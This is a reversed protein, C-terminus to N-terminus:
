LDQMAPSVVQDPWVLLVLIELIEQVVLQEQLEQIEERV